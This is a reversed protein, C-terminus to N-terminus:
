INFRSAGKKNTGVHMKKAKKRAMENRKRKPIRETKANKEGSKIDSKVRPTKEIGAAQEEKRKQHKPKGLKSLKQQHQEGRAGTGKKDSFNQFKNNYRQQKRDDPKGTSQKKKLAETKKENLKKVCRSVRIKREGMQSGDLRLALGVTDKTKFQVYGFGKGIGTKNDRIIRVNEIEGCSAFHQYVTEDTVDFALAGLFVSSANDHVKSKTAQDVRLHNGKYEMGNVEKAANKAADEDKFRVFGNISKKNPHQQKTIYAYKKPKSIDEPVINRFRVAEIKGYPKFIKMLEEKKCDVNLNGVFVTRKEEEPDRKKKKVIEPKKLEEKVGKLDPIPKTDEDVVLARAKRAFLKNLNKDVENNDTDFISEFKTM